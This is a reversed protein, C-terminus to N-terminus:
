IKSSFDNVICCVKAIMSSLVFELLKCDAECKSVANSVVKKWEDSLVKSKSSESYVDSLKVANFTGDVFIGTVRFICDNM